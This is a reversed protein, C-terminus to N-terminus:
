RQRGIPMPILPATQEYTSRKKMLYSWSVSWCDTIYICIYIIFSVYMDSRKFITENMEDDLVTIITFHWGKDWLDNLESTLTEFTRM